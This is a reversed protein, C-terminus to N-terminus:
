FISRGKRLQVVTYWGFNILALVYRFGFGLGFILFYFFRTFIHGVCWQRRRHALRVHINRLTPSQKVEKNIIKLNGAAHQKRLQVSKYYRWHERRCKHRFLSGAKISKYIFALFKPNLFFFIESSWSRIQTQENWEQTKVKDTQQLFSHTLFIWNLISRM